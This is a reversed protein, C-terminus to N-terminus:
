SIDLSVNGTGRVKLTIGTVNTAPTFTFSCSGSPIVFAAMYDSFSVDNVMNTYNAFSGSINKPSTSSYAYQQASLTTELALYACDGPNDVSFTYTTNKTLNPAYSGSGYLQESTYTAM